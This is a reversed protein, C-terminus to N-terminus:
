TVVYSKYFHCRELIDNKKPILKDGIAILIQKQALYYNKFKLKQLIFTIYKSPSLYHHKGSLAVWNLPSLGSM